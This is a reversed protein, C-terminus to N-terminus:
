APNLIIVKKKYPEQSIRYTTIINYVVRSILLLLMLATSVMGSRMMEEDGVICKYRVMCTHVYVYRMVPGCLRLFVDGLLEWQQGEFDSLYRYQGSVIASM